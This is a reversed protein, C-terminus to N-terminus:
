ISPIVPAIIDYECVPTTESIVFRTLPLMSDIHSKSFAINCVTEYPTSKVITLPESYQMLLFITLVQM